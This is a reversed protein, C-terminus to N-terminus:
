WRSIDVIGLSKARLFLAETIELDKALYELLRDIEGRAYIEMVDSGDVDLVEIGILSAFEKMKGRIKGYRHASIKDRVDLVQKLTFPVIPVNHIFSRTVLFPLDFSAVNFGVIPYNKQGLERWLSWFQTLMTKEDENYILTNKGAFRVGIAVIKSDVPNILRKREDEDLTRAHVVDLPCTEIDIIFAM